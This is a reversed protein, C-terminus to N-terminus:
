GLLRLISTVGHLPQFQLHITVILGEEQMISSKETCRYAGHVVAYVFANLHFTGMIVWNAHVLEQKCYKKVVTCVHM